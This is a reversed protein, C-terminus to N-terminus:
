EDTGGAAMQWHAWAVADDLDDFMAVRPPADDGDKFRRAFLQSPKSGFVLATAVREPSISSRLAMAGEPSLYGLERGDVVAAYPGAGVFDELEALGHAGSQEDIKLATNLRVLVVRNAYLEYDAYLGARTAVVEPEPM